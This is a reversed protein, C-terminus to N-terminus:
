FGVSFAVGPHRLWVWLLSASWNRERYTLMLHSKRGDHMPILVWANGLFINAGFPVNFGDEHESYNLSVYPM